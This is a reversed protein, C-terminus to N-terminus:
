SRRIRESAVAESFPDFDDPLPAAGTLFPDAPEQPMPVDELTFELLAPASDVVEPAPPAEVTLDLDLGFLHGGTVDAAEQAAQRAEEPDDSRAWPALAQDDEESGAGLGSERGLAMALDHLFLLDRGAQLSFAKGAPAVTFLSLEIFDQAEPTGWAGSIRNALDPYSELGLPTNIQEFKPSEVGFVQAYRKRVHVLSAADDTHVCLRMLEYYALPAPAASDELYTKLIDMADNWLGLSALFDVEEFTASLTEVRMMTASPARVQMVPRAPEAAPRVPQASRQMPAAAPETVVPQAPTPVFAAQGLPAPATGLGELVADLQAGSWNGGAGRATRYWLWAATAAVLALLLALFQMARVPVGLASPADLERRLALMEQNTQGATQRLQALEGELQQLTASTRLIQEPGANIAQWM